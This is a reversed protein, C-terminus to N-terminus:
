GISDDKEVKINKHSDATIISLFDAMFETNVRYEIVLNGEDTFISVKYM